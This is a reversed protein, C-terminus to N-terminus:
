RDVTQIWIFCAKEADRELKRSVADQLLLGAVMVWICSAGRWQTSAPTPDYRSLGARGQPTEMWTGYDFQALGVYWGRYGVAGPKWTSEGRIMCDLKRAQSPYNAYLYERPTAVVPASVEAEAEAEIEEEASVAQGILLMAALLVSV